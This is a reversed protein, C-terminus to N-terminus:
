TNSKGQSAIDMGHSEHHSIMTAGDASKAEPIDAAGGLDSQGNEDGDKPLDFDEYETDAIEDDYDRRFLPISVRGHKLDELLSGSDSVAQSSPGTAMKELQQKIDHIDNRPDASRRLIAAQGQECIGRLEKGITVEITKM